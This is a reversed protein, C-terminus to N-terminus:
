EPLEVVDHLKLMSVVQPATALSTEIFAALVQAPSVDSPLHRRRM